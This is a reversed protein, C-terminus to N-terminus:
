GGGELRAELHRYPSSVTMRNHPDGGMFAM